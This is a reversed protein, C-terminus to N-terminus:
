EKFVVRFFRELFFSSFTRSESGLWTRIKGYTARLYFSDTYKTRTGKYSSPSCLARVHLARPAEGFLNVKSPAYTCDTFICVLWM